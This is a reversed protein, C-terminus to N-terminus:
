NYSFLLKNIIENKDLIPNNIFLFPDAFETSVRFEWHLHPGTSLGTSGSLGLLALKEVIEGASVSLSDLHYYLSYVGPMHELVVTYGTVIRFQALVVRGRGSALVPTGTPVGFDIAAHITTDTGGGHYQYVRRDGFHSTIRASNVPVIFPGTEYIETGTTTLIAWMQESELNRQPNPATRIETNTPNLYVTQSNFIRSEITLPIESLLNDGSEIRIIAQQAAATNPVALIAIKIYGNYIENSEELQLPFFVAGNLRRGSANLLTARYVPETDASDDNGTFNDYFAVIVPEGPAVRTSNVAFRSEPPLSALFSIIDNEETQTYNTTYIYTEEMNVIDVAENLTGNTQGSCSALFLLISMFVMFNKM